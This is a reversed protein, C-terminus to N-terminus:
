KRTVFQIAELEPTEDAEPTQGNRAPEDEWRREGLYKAAYPIFKGGDRQWEETQKRREV